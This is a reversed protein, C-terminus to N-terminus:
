VFQSMLVCRPAEDEAMGTLLSLLSGLLVRRLFSPLLPGRNAFLFSLSVRRLHARVQFSPTLPSPPLLRKTKPWKAMGTLLPLLSGLFPVRRLFSPLLPGRNAFLFSLSVRRLHARVQFSPPTLSLPSPHHRPPLLLHRDRSLTGFTPPFRFHCRCRCRRLNRQSLLPLPPPLPKQPPPLLPLAARLPTDFQSRSM